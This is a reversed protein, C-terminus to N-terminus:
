FPIATGDKMYLVHEIPDLEGEIYEDDQRGCDPCDPDDCTLWDGNADLHKHYRELEKEERRKMAYSDCLGDCTHSGCACPASGGDFWYYPDLRDDECAFCFPDGLWIHMLELDGADSGDLKMRAVNGCAPCKVTFRINM